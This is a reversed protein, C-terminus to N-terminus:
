AITRIRTCLAIKTAELHKKVFYVAEVNPVETYKEGLMKKINNDIEENIMKKLDGFSEEQMEKLIVLEDRGEKSARIKVQEAKELLEELREPDDFIGISM